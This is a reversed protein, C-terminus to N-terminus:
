PGQYLMDRIKLNFTDCFEVLKNTGIDRCKTDLNFDGVLIINEYKVKRLTAAIEDFFTTLNSYEPPRYISFCIWKQGAIILESCMCEISQPQYEMLGHCLLGKKACELLGGGYKNRDKRAWIEYESLHFQSTSFSEDLKTESSVFYNLQFDQLIIRM